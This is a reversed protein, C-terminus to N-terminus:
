GLKKHILELKHEAISKMMTNTKTEKGKKLEEELEKMFRGDKIEAIVKEMQEKVHDDIIKPGRSLAGFRATDSIREFTGLIGFRAFMDTMIKTEKLCCYYAIEPSYGEGVLTDFAATILGWIGGCILAQEAFLDTETEEAFTTEITTRETAGFNIAYAKAIQWASGTINQHVAILTPISVKELYMRRVTEAHAMPAVLIVDIDERPKILKYHINLGHAFVIASNLPLADEIESYLNKQVSDPVMFAAIDAKKAAEKPNTILPFNSSKVEGISLSTEPLCITVKLGSDQLNMAHARGQAGYGFIVISKDRIDAPMM